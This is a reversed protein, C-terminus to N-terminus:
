AVTETFPGLPTSRVGSRNVTRVWWDYTGAGPDDGIIQGGGAAGYVTRVWAVPDGTLARGVETAYYNLSSPNVWTITAGTGGPTVTFSTVDGAPTNDATIEVEEVDTYPGINGSDGGSFGAHAVQVEYTRGDEVVGSIVRWEGDSSMATWTSEGEPRLRGITTWPTDAVADVSARIRTQWVGASPQIRELTIELGTPLPPVDADPTSGPAVPATGEETSPSWAYTEEPLSSLVLDCSALDGSLNFSEVYFDDDLDLEPLVIHVCREGLALLGGLNTRLTLKHRPNQRASFIKGLRRAQTWSPVQELTLDNSLVGVQAQSALDEWPDIEFPQYDAERNCFTLKLRNFAALRDNGQEYHYSLIHEPGLTVTPAEWVGGRIAVKGEATPYVEADCSALLLRLVERPEASLDYTMACRYRPEEGGGSLLVDEDCIDAFASFSEDDIMGTPINFGRPRTLYDRIELAPNESFATAETRPDYLKATRAM